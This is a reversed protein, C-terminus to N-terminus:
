WFLVTYCSFVYKNDSLSTSKPTYVDCIFYVCTSMFRTREPPSACSRIVSYFVVWVLTGFSVGGGGSVSTVCCNLSGVSVSGFFVLFFGSILQVLLCFRLQYVGM